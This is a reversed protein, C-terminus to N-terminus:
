LDLATPSGGKISPMEAHNANDFAIDAQLGASYGAERPSSGKHDAILIRAVHGHVEIANTLASLDFSM